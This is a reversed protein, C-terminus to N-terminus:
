DYDVIEFIEEAPNLNIRSYTCLKDVYDNQDFSFKEFTGEKYKSWGEKNHSKMHIFKIQGKQKLENYVIWLKKTLDPNAKEEFTKKTWKSMYKEIMNMWFECDTIVTIKDWHTSKDNIIILSRLIAVGEARINSASYEKIDINGYVCKDKFEGSVFLAAYGGRSKKSRNNPYCSGDTYVIHHKDNIDLISKADNYEKKNLNM